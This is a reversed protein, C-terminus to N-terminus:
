YGFDIYVIDNGKVWIANVADEWGELWYEKRSRDYSGATKRYTIRADPKKRIFDGNKVDKFHVARANDIFLEDLAPEDGKLFVPFYVSESGALTLYGAQDTGYDRGHELEFQLVADFTPYRARWEKLRTDNIIM